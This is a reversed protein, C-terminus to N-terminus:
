NIELWTPIFQAQSNTIRSGIRSYCGGWRDAILFSGICPFAEVLAPERQENLVPHPVSALTIRRQAVFTGWKRCEQWQEPTMQAGDYVEAGERGYFEKIIFPHYDFDEPLDALLYTEPLHSAIITREDEDFLTTNEREQWLWAMVAKSQALFGRLNNLCKLSGIINAQIYAAFLPTHAFQEIPYLRWIADVPQGMLFLGGGVLSVNLLDSVVCELGLERLRAAYYETQALDTLHRGQTLFGVRPLLRPGEEEPVGYPLPPFLAEEYFAQAMDSGINPNLRAVPALTSLLAFLREEIQTVEQSGSPTDSNYELM